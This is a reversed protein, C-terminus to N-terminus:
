SFFLFSPSSHKDFSANTLQEKFPFPQLLLKKAKDLMGLTVLIFKLEEELLSYKAEILANDMSANKKHLDTDPPIECIEAEIVENKKKM